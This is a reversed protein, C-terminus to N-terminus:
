KIKAMENIRATGISTNLLGSNGRLMGSLATNGWVVHSRLRTFKEIKDATRPVNCEIIQLEVASANDRTFCRLLLDM